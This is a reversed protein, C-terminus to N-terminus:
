KYVGETYLRVLFDLYADRDNPLVFSDKMLKSTSCDQFAFYGWISEIMTVFYCGANVDKRILGKNQATNVLEIIDGRVMTFNKEFIERAFPFGSLRERQLLKALVPDSIRADIFHGLLRRIQEAFNKRNVAEKRFLEVTESFVGRIEMAHAELIALYLGEKGGFYYSILSLNVAAENAIQRVSTAHVGHNSFLRTAVALIKQRSGDEPADPILGVKKSKRKAAKAKAM